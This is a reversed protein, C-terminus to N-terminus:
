PLAEKTPILTRTIPARRDLSVPCPALCGFSESRSFGDLVAWSRGRAYTDCRRLSLPQLAATAQRRTRGATMVALRLLVGVKVSAPPTDPPTGFDEEGPPRYVETPILSEVQDSTLASASLAENQIIREVVRPDCETEYTQRPLKGHGIATPRFGHARDGSVRGHGEDHPVACQWTTCLPQRERLCCRSPVQRNRSAVKM